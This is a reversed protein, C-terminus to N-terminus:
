FGSKGLSASFVLSVSENSQGRVLSRCVSGSHFCRDRRVHQAHTGAQLKDCVQTPDPLDAARGTEEGM